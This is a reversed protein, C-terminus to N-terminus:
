LCSFLQLKKNKMQYILTNRPDFWQLNRQKKLEYKKNSDTDRCDFLVGNQRILNNKFCSLIEQEKGGRGKFNSKTVFEENIKLVLM